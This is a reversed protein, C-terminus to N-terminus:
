GDMVTACIQANSTIKSMGGGGTFVVVQTPAFVFSVGPNVSTREFDYLNLDDNKESAMNFYASGYLKSGFSGSIQAKAKLAKTPLNGGTGFKSRQFYYVKGNDPLAVVTESIGEECLGDVAVYPLDTMEYGVEVRSRVKDMLRGSWSARVRNKMTKTDASNPDLLVNDRDITHLRYDLRVSHGPKPIWALRVTGLWEERDYASLRTWDFDQGGGTQGDRWAALDIDVPDNEIKRRAFSATVRTRKTLPAYWALAASQSTLELNTAQNEITAFTFSGRVSQNRPLDASAKVSHGLKETDPTRSFELTENNYILRSAFEGGSGGSVPHRAEMYRNMSAAASNEFERASFRYSLSLSSLTGELGLALDRTREDIVKSHSRVHCNACHDVGLGQRM